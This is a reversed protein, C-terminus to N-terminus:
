RADKSVVGAQELQVFLKRQMRQLGRIGSRFSLAMVRLSVSDKKLAKETQQLMVVSLGLATHFEDLSKAIAEQAKKDLKKPTKAM